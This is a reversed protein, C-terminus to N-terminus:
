DDQQETQALSMCDINTISQIRITYDIEILRNLSKQVPHFIVHTLLRSNGTSSYSKLGIEDFVFDSYSNTTDFAEQGDPEGYDLLCTVIIDSYYAGSVHRVELTNRLPDLNNISRDDVIKSYTENYLQANLGINNASLYTIIGNSDVNTGGNGFSLEHIWGTGQNSLTEAMSISINEYHISNKKNVFIENQIPDFIKLWGTINFGTTDRM